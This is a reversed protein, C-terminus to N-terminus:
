GEWIRYFKRAKATTGLLHKTEENYPICQDFTGGICHFPYLHQTTGGYFSFLDVEWKMFGTNVLVRDFPQFRSIPYKDIKILCECKAPSTIDETLYHVVCEDAGKLEIIKYIEGCSDKAYDGIKFPNKNKKDQEEKWVRWDRQDKSPFLLCEPTGAMSYYGEKTFYHDGSNNTTKIPFDPFFISGITVFEVEGCLPTYFKTGKPCDKLIEVLNLEKM